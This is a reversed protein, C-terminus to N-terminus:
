FKLFPKAQLAQILVSCALLGYLLAGFFTLKIDKLLYFALLPLIQLAHMGIFHAVRLDGLTRSWNLFPLGKSGDAGGITHASNGGMVFGQFSFIVFIIIGLRIAWVYYDPLQPFDTTWFKLGIYGVALTAISAAVAMLSFMAAYFPTSQNFHSAQGRGAQLAIYLVEFALTGVIIWYVINLDRSPTLHGTYWALSWSLILTSLAFKIPKYWANTGGFEIPRIFVFVIFLLAAILNVWGFFYLIENRAKLELIIDM